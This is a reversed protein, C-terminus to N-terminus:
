VPFAYATGLQMYEHYWWGFVIMDYISTMELRPKSALKAHWPIFLALSLTMVAVPAWVLVWVPSAKVLGWLCLVIPISYIYHMHLSIYTNICRCPHRRCHCRESCSPQMSVAAGAGWGRLTALLPAVLSRQCQTKRFWHFLKNVSCCFKFYKHKFSYIGLEFRKAFM